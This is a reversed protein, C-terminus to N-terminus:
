KGAEVWEKRTTVLGDIYEEPAKGEALAMASDLLPLAEPTRGARHLLRAKLECNWFSEKLAMSQDIWTLSEDTRENTDLSFRAAQHYAEWRDPSEVTIASDLQAWVLQNVNATIDFSWRTRDWAFTARLTTPTIPDLDFRMWETQDGRSTPAEVRFIDNEPKYFYAGWQQWDKNVILTWNKESPIAFLAYTGAPLEHGAMTVPTSFRITTADNAGLRWVQGYPVLSGFIKRKKVGPSHYDIRVDTTGVSRSISAASSAQPLKVDARAPTSLVALIMLSQVLKM